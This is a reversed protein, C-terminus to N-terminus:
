VAAVEGNYVPLAAIVAQVMEAKDAATYYDVGAVPTPGPAGPKGPAGPAGDFAGSEKAQALAADVARGLETASLKETSLREVAQKNAAIQDAEEKTAGAQVPNEKLYDAVAGAIGEGELRRLRDDLDRYTLVETETYVYDAPKARPEISFVDVHQTCGSTCCYSFAMIDYREQLLINPITVYSHDATRVVKVILAATNFKTTFHVEDINAGLDDLILKVNSDWQYLKERGDAMRLM